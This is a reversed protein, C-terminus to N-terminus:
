RATKEYDQQDCVREKEPQANKLLISGASTPMDATDYNDKLVIPICGLPKLKGTSKFEADMADAQQLARSDLFLVSNLKPGQHDYDQIRNLYQQVLNHCTLTGARMAKHIDSISTETAQFSQAHLEGTLPLIMAPLLLLRFRRM